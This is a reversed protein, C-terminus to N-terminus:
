KEREGSSPTRLAGPGLFGGPVDWTIDPGPLAHDGLRGGAVLGTSLLALSTLGVGVAVATRRGRPPEDRGAPGTRDGADRRPRTPGGTGPATRRVARAPRTALYRRAGWGLVAEALLVDLGGDFHGLQETAHVCHRCHAAHRRVDCPLAAGPRPSGQLHPTYLRCQEAPALDRHARVCGARFRRRAQELSAAATATDMALLAAPVSLPDAEVESHWLLCQFPEPLAHFAREALRRREPTAGSVARLARGGGPRLLEPLVVCAVDDAAWARVTDRAAVLLAPRLAGGDPGDAAHRLVRHFAETAVMAASSGHGTLCIGAYDYTARWHRALLGAVSRHGGEDGRLRAVLTRDSERSPSHPPCPPHPPHPFQM